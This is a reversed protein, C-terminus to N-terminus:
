RVQRECLRAHMAQSTKGSRYGWAEPGQTVLGTQRLCQMCPQVCQPLAVQLYAKYVAQPAVHLYAKYVANLAVHLYAKYVAHLAPPM